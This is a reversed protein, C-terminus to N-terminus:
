YASPQQSGAAQEDVADVADVVGWFFWLGLGRVGSRAPFSPLLQHGTTMALNVLEGIMM